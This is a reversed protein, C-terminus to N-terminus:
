ETLSFPPTLGFLKALEQSVMKLAALDVSLYNTANPHRSVCPEWILKEFFGYSSVKM